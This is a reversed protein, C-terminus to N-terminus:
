PRAKKLSNLWQIAAPQRKSELYPVLFLAAEIKKANGLRFVQNDPRAIRTAAHQAMWLYDEDWEKGKSRRLCDAVRNALLEDAAEQPVVPGRIERIIYRAPIDQWRICYFSEQKGGMNRLRPAPTTKAVADRMWEAYNMFYACYFDTELEDAAGCVYIGPIFGGSTEVAKTHRNYESERITFEGYRLWDSLQRFRDAVYVSSGNTHFFAKDIGSIDLSKALEGPMLDVPIVRWEEAPWHLPYLHKLALSQMDKNFRERDYRTTLHRKPLKELM